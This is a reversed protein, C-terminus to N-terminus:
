RADKRKAWVAYAVGDALEELLESRFDRADTVLDLAGYQERGMAIRRALVLLPAREDANLRQVIQWLEYLEVADDERTTM